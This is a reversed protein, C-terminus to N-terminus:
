TQQFAQWAQMHAPAEHVRLIDVGKVAMRLSVGISEWDREAPKRNSWHAMFSKRSHGVLLRVPLARFAAINQLLTLSQLATKGFGIGPDFIVRGLDIGADNLMDLKQKAWDLIVNVPNQEPAITTARDAPISLSHMLIYDCATEALLPLMAPDALGSVDNIINAGYALARRATAARWTDISLYPRFIRGADYTQMAELAPALRAWEEEPTLLAAGPRTSEAGLDLLPVTAADHLARKQQLAAPALLAGGDSFSDPTLNFIACWLPAHTPLLRAQTLITQGNPLRHNPALHLLPDLVFSRQLLGPHPIQLEPAHLTENGFLIIDLDILRPAWRPAPQRGLRTEIQKLAQLLAQPTDSWNLALVANRYPVNWGPPANDPLLAPTVFVPSPKLASAAPHAALAQAAANLNQLSDGLNSGLGIYCLQPM